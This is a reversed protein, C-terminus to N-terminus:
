TLWEADHDGLVGDVTYSAVVVLRREAVLPPLTHRLFLHHWRLPPFARDVDALGLVVTRGGDLLTQVAGILEDPDVPPAGDGFRAVTLEGRHHAFDSLADDLRGHLLFLRGHGGHTAADVAAEIADLVRQMMVATM